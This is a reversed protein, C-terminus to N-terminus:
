RRVMRWLSYVVLGVGVGCVDFLFDSWECYRNPIPLQHLEDVGALGVGLLISGTTSALRGKGSLIFMRGLFVGLVAYEALHALKDGWDFSLYGTDIGPLSSVTLIVAAWISAPAWHIPSM